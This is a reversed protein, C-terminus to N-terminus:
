NSCRAVIRRAVENLHDLDKDNVVEYDVEFNKFDNESSHKSHTGEELNPRTVRITVVNECKDKFYDLTSAYRWDPIILFDCYRNEFERHMIAETFTEEEWYYKNRAYGEDTINILLQRGKADKEGNWKFKKTAVDKVSQANGRILTRNFVAGSPQTDLHNMLYDALQNKGSGAQGCILIVNNM